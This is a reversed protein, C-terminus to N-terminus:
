LVPSELVKIEGKDADMRANIGIPLTANHAEHGVPFGKAVPVGLSGLREKFVEDLSISFEFYPDDKQADCNTFYGLAIGKVGDLKGANLLQTLMRDVRYTSEGIEEIFLIHGSYDVDYPTGIQSVLLSLNGGILKGECEGGFLADEDTQIKVKKGKVVTDILYDMTFDNYGSAGVPGHFGVLGSKQYMGMLVATIDSFGVLVKPNNRILDFDILPLLRGSGYGGRGCIIGDVTDDTFAAHLDQVRQQDTGSLFGSRVKLNDSYKAKFGMQEINELMKEFASRSLASAPTILQVTGNKPIAQPKILSPTQNTQSGFSVFPTSLGAIASNYIFNRRNM